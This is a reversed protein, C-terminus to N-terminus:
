LMSITLIKPDEDPNPLCEKCIIATNEKAYEGGGLGM